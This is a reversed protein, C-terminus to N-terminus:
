IPSTSSGFPCVSGEHYWHEGRMREVGGARAHSFRRSLSVLLPSSLSTSSDMIGHQRSIWIDIAGFSSWVDIDFWRFVPWAMDYGIFITRRSSHSYKSLRGRCWILNAMLEGPGLRVLAAIADDVRFYRLPYSILFFVGNELNITGQSSELPVAICIPFLHIPSLGLLVVKWYNRELTPM